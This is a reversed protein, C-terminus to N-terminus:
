PCDVADTVPSQDAVAVHPPVTGAVLPVVPEGTATVMLEPTVRVTLVAM